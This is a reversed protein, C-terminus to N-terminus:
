EKGKDNVRKTQEPTPISLGAPDVIKLYFDIFWNKAKEEMTKIYWFHECRQIRVEPIVALLDYGIITQPQPILRAQGPGLVEMTLNCLYSAAARLVFPEGDKWGLEHDILGVWRTPTSSVFVFRSLWVDLNAKTVDFEKAGTFQAKM